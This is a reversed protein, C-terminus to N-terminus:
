ENYHKKYELITLYITIIDIIILLIISFTGDILLKYVEYLLFLVFVGIAVPYIKYKRKSLFIVLIIKIVGHSLLYLIWFTNSTISYNHFAKILFNAAFDKPDEVIEQSTFFSITKVIQEPKIIILLISSIIELIANLGKMLLAFGFLKDLNIKNFKM